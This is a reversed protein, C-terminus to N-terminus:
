RKRSPKSPISADPKSGINITTPAVQQPAVDPAPIGQKAQEMRVQTYAGTVKGATYNFGGLGALITGLIVTNDMEKYESYLFAVFLASSAMMTCLRNMSLLGNADDEYFQVWRWWNM